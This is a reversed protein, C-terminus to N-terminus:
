GFVTNIIEKMEMPEQAQRCWCWWWWWREYKNRGRQIHKRIRTKQMTNFQISRNERATRNTYLWLFVCALHTTTLDYQTLYPQSLTRWVWPKTQNSLICDHIPKHRIVCFTHKTQTPITGYWYVLYCKNEKQMKTWKIQCNSFLYLLIYCQSFRHCMQYKELSPCLSFFSKIELHIYIYGLLNNTIINFVIHRTSQKLNQFKSNQLKKKVKFYSTLQSKLTTSSYHM